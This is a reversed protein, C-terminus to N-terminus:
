LYSKREFNKYPYPPCGVENQLLRFPPDYEFNPVKQGRSTNHTDAVLVRVVGVVGLTITIADAKCSLSRLKLKPGKQWWATLLYTLLYTFTSKYLASNHGGRSCETRWYGSFLFTKLSYKFCDDSIDDCALERLSNPLSQLRYQTPPSTLGQEIWDLLSQVCYGETMLCYLKTSASHHHRQTASVTVAPRASPLTQNIVSM